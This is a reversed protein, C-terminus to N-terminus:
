GNMLALMKEFDYERIVEAKDPTECEKDTVIVDAESINDVLKTAMMEFFSYVNIIRTIGFYDLVFGMDTTGAVNACSDRAM